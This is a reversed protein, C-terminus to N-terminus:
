RNGANRRIGKEAIDRRYYMGEFKISALAEYAKEKAKQLDTEKMISTVGLVRGGSTVIKGEKESTGAHFVVVEASEAEELGSIELGKPYSGPYGESSAVVCVSSYLLKLFDGELLLLVAQTEPDGFRCNFEVVKIGKETVMLGCYLCGSFTRGERKMGDLTPEIIYKKIEELRERTIIPAPSYAGMGGTNKGTDKEGIRKHDQASPLCVYKEGDTIAFISAEEGTMFEEIVVKDGSSGFVKDVFIENM